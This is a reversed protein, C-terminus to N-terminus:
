TEKEAEKEMIEKSKGMKSKKNKAGVEKEQKEQRAKKKLHRNEWEDPHDNDSDNDQHKRKIADGAQTRCAMSYAEFKKMVKM